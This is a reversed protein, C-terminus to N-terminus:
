ELIIELDEESHFIVQSSEPARARGSIGSCNPSPFSSSPKQHRLKFLMQFQYNISARRGGPPTRVGIQKARSATAEIEV